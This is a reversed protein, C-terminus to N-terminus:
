KETIRNLKNPNAQTQKRENSNSKHAEYSVSKESSGQSKILLVMFFYNYKNEELLVPVRLTASM